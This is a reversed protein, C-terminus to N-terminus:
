QQSSLRNRPPRNPLFRVDSRPPRQQAALAMPLFLIRMDQKYPFLIQAHPAFCSRRLAHRSVKIESEAPFCFPLALAKLRGMEYCLTKEYITASAYVGEDRRIQLV